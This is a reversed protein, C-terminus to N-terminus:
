SENSPAVDPSELGGRPSFHPPRNHAARPRGNGNCNGRACVAEEINQVWEKYATGAVRHTNRHTGGPVEYFRKVPARSAKFLAYGMEIPVLNDDRGHVIILPIDLQRLAELTNFETVVFYEVGPVKAIERAMAPISTFTSELVLAAANRRLAVQAAVAGGLSRGFLVIPRDGVKDRAWDFAALGDTIVGQETPWGTSGGFGRYHVVMISYGASWLVFANPMHRSRFGRRGPFLIIVKSNSRSNPIWWAELTEGDPTSLNFARSPLGWDEPELRAEGTPQFLFSHELPRCSAVSVLSLVITSVIVVARSHM